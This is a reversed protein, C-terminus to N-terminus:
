SLDEPFSALVAVDVFQGGRREQQRMIGEEHAGLRKKLFSRFMHNDAFVFWCVKRFGEAFLQQTAERAADAKERPSIDHRDFVMHGLGIGDALKHFWVAGVTRGYKRVAFNRGGSALTQQNIQSIGEFTRPLTDDMTEREFERLWEFVLAVDADTAPQVIVKEDVSQCLGPGSM